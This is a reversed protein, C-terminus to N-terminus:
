GHRLSGCGPHNAEACRVCVTTAAASAQACPPPLRCCMLSVSHGRPAFAPVEQRTACRARYLAGFALADAAMCGVVLLAAPTSTSPPECARVVTVGHTDARAGPVKQCSEGEGRTSLGGGRQRPGAAPSDRTWEHPSGRAIVRVSRACRVIPVGPTGDLYEGCTAGPVVAAALKPVRHPFAPIPSSPAQPM